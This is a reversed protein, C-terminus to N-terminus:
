FSLWFFDGSGFTVRGGGGLFFFFFFRKSFKKSNYFGESFILKWKIYWLLKKVAFRGRKKLVELFDQGFNEVGLFGSIKFKLNLFIGKCRGTM